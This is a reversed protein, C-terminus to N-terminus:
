THQPEQLFTEQVKVLSFPVVSRKATLVFAAVNEIIREKLLVSQSQTHLCPAGPHLVTCTVVTHLCHDSRHYEGRPNNARRKIVRFTKLDPGRFTVCSLYLVVPSMYVTNFTYTGM